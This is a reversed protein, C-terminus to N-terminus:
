ARKTVDFPRNRKKKLLGPSAVKPSAAPEGFQTRCRQETRIDERKWRTDTDTHCTRM